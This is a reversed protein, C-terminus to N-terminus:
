TRDGKLEVETVNDGELDISTVSDGELSTTNLANAGLLFAQRQLTPYGILHEYFFDSDVVLPPSLTFNSGITTLVPPYILDQDEYLAQELLSNSESVIDVYIVDLASTLPPSLTNHATIVPTYIQDQDVYASPFTVGGVTTVVPTYIVDDAPIV